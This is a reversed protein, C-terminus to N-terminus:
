APPIARGHGRERLLHRLLLDPPPGGAIAASGHGVGSPRLPSVAWRKPPGRAPQVCPRRARPGQRKATSFLM